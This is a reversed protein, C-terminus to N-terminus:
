LFLKGQQQLGTKSFASYGRLGQLMLALLVGSGRRVGGCGVLHLLGM